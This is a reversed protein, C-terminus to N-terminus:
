PQGDKIFQQVNRADIAENAAREEMRHRYYAREKESFTNSEDYSGCYPINMDIWACLKDWEEPTLEVKNHGKELLKIMGSAISGARCPPYPKMLEFRTWWTVYRNPEDAKAKGDREWTKGRMYYEAPNPGPRAKTLNYYSLNWKKKADPDNLMPEATLALSKAKGEPNHCSICHKDLIPQIETPYSFGRPPGYFPKLEEIGTKMAQTRKAKVLNPAMSKEEHCGVCSLSENPMLTAWSRMTQVVRNKEDLLQFYFPLRAPVRFMASGDPYVTADGIIRKADFPGIPHGPNTVTHLAGGPGGGMGWGITCPKYLIEIVRIKKITGRPIGAIAPGIYADQMFIVGDKKRYDVTTSRSLPRPRPMVPIAQLCSIDPDSALLERRGDTTMFFVGYGVKSQSSRSVLFEKENFPYPNSYQVGQKGYNDDPRDGCAPKKNDPIQILGEDKQRGKSVDMIALKGGQTTHYGGLITLIKQSGPIGRAHHFSNPTGTQNGYMETQNTGDSNMVFLAHASSQGRDNYDRRCYIIRGDELLAPTATNTQDFGIRRAYKGDKNMIFFNSCDGWGCTIHQVIRASSFLIDGNPLYCPEFSAGYTEDTTLQRVQRTALDMECIQYNGTPPAESGVDTTGIHRRTQRWAFLLKTADFFLDPDRVMGAKPDFLISHPAFEELTEGALDIQCLSSPEPCGETETIVYIGSQSAFVQHKAFIISKTKGLLPKLREARRQRCAKEYLTFWAPNGPGLDSKTLAKLEKALEAAAPRSLEDLVRRIMKEELGTGKHSLYHQFDGDFDDADVVPGERRLCDQMFWDCQHPFEQRLKGAQNGAASGAGSGFGFYYGSNASLNFIKLLLWHEGPTLDLTIKEENVTVPRVANHSLIRKDDLWVEVGDDSGIGVPLQCAKNVTFKRVFYITQSNGLPLAQIQDDAKNWEMWLKKGDRKAELDPAGPKVPNDEFGKVAFPATALWDDIQLPAKSLAVNTGAYAAAMREAWTKVRTQRCAKEYLALWAPNEPGPNQRILEELEKALPAAQDGLETLAQRILAQELGNGKHDFYAQIDGALDSSKAKPDERRPNDQQFWESQLRFERKIKESFETALSGKNFYFGSIGSVNFVKALLWHEGPTLKLTASDQNAAVGRSTNVQVLREQDLWVEIGDDSGLSIPLEFERAVTLKRVFYISCSDGLSLGHAQGDPKDWPQWLPKGDRKAQLDPKGPKIPNEDFSAVKYQATALWGGMTVPAKDIANAETYAATMREPWAAPRAAKSAPLDAALGIGAGFGLAILLISLFRNM